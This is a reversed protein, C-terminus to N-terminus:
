RSNTGTTTPPPTSLKQIELKASAILTDNKSVNIFATFDSIAEDTNGLAEYALARHYYGDALGPDIELAKNCDAISKGMDGEM